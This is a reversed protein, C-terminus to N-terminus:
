LTVREDTFASSGCSGCRNAEALMANHSAVITQETRRVQYRKGVYNRAHPIKKPKAEVLEAPAFRVAGCQSCTRRYEYSTGTDGLKKEAREM